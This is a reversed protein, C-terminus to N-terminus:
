PFKSNTQVGRTLPHTIAQHSLFSMDLLSNRENYNLSILLACVEDFTTFQQLEVINSYKPDLGGLYHIIIQEKPEEIDCKILLKEFERTYEDISMSGQTLNYLQAYSDQVYPSPLFRTKSKM